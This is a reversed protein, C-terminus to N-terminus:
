PTVYREYLEAAIAVSDGTPTSAYDEGQPDTERTWASEYAFFDPPSPSGGAASTPHAPTLLEMQNGKPSFSSM